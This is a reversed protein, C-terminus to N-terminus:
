GVVLAVPEVVPEVGHEHAQRDVAVVLGTDHLERKGQLDAIWPVGLGVHVGTPKDVFRLEDPHPLAVVREM